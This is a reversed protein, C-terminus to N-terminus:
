KIYFYFFEVNSLRVTNSSLPLSQKLKKEKREKKKKKLCSIRVGWGLWCTENWVLSRSPNSVYLALLIPEPRYEEHTFCSPMQVLEVSLLFFHNYLKSIKISLRIFIFYPPEKGFRIDSMKVHTNSDHM